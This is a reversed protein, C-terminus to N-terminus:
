RVVREPEAEAGRREPSKSFARDVAVSQASAQRSRPYVIAVVVLATMAGAMQMGVRAILELPNVPGEAIALALALAPNALPAGPTALGVMVLWGSVAFPGVAPRMVRSATLVITMLGSTAFFEGALVLHLPAPVHPPTSPAVLSVLAAGVAAGLLQAAFYGALCCTDRQGSWWQSATILPNFHGGSVPGFTLILAALTSPVAIAPLWAETPAALGARVAFGFAMTLM